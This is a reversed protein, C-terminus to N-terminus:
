FAQGIAMHVQLRRTLARFFGPDDWEFPDFQVFGAQRVGGEGDDVLLPLTRAGSPDYGVDVRIPGLDTILRFGVGPALMSHRLGGPAAGAFPSAARSLRGYDVFAALQLTSGVWYRTELNAEFLRDGGTPRLSVLRPDIPPLDCDAAAACAPPSDDGRAVLVRPGLLNQEAGRVTGVGGSYLRVQPPLVDDGGITGVRVRAALEASRGVVRTVGGEMLARTFTYQSATAPGAGEVALRATWRWDPVPVPAWPTGPRTDARRVDGPLDSSTWLLVAELPALRTPEALARAGAESCVGYNGCFYTTSAELENRELQYDLLALLGRGFDRSLGLRAGVGREIWASPSSHRRTFAGIRMTYRADGFASPQWLEADLAHDLAEFEGGGTSGCPFSGGTQEAFLNSVSAGLAFVRPGGLFYRHRWFTALALCDTSSLTGEVELASTRRAEVLIRTEITPEGPVTAVPELVAREVIPLGYLSRTTALLADPDFADGPRFRLRSRVAGEGIPAEVEITSGGFVAAPGPQLELTLDAASAAEDV